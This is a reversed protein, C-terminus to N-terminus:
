VNATAEADKGQELNPILLRPRPTLVKSQMSLQMSLPLLALLCELSVSVSHFAEKSHNSQVTMSM